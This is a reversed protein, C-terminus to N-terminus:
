QETVELLELQVQKVLSSVEEVVSLAEEVNPIFQGSALATNMARIQQNLNVGIKGLEMATVRNVEPIAAPMKRREVCCRIFNSLDMGVSAAKNNWTIKEAPTLRLEYRATYIKLRSMINQLQTLAECLLGGVGTGNLLPDDPVSTPKAQEKDPFPDIRM